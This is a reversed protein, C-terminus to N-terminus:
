FSIQCMVNRADYVEKNDNCKDPCTSLAQSCSLIDKTDCIIPNDKKSSTTSKTVTVPKQITNKITIQNTQNDLM